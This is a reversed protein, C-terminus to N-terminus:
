VVEVGSQLDESENSTGDTVGYDEEQNYSEHESDDENYSMEDNSPYNFIYSFCPIFWYNQNKDENNALVQFVFKRESYIYTLYNQTDNSEKYIKGDSYELSSISDVYKCNLLSPTNENCSVFYKTSCSLLSNRHPIYFFLQSDAFTCKEGILKPSHNSVTIALINAADPFTIAMPVEPIPRLIKREMLDIKHLVTEYNNEPPEDLIRFFINPSNSFTYYIQASQNVRPSIYNDSFTWEYNKDDSNTYLKLVLDSDEQALMYLTNYLNIFRSNQKNYVWIQRHDDFNAKSPILHPISDSDDLTLAVEEEKENKFLILYGGSEVM